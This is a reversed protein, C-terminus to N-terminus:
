NVAGADTLVFILLHSPASAQTLDVPCRLSLFFSRHSAGVGAPLVIGAVCGAAVGGIASEGIGIRTEVRFALFYEGVVTRADILGLDRQRM